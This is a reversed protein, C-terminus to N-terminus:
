GPRCSGGTTDVCVLDVHRGTVPVSTLTRGWRRTTGGCGVNLRFPQDPTTRYLKKRFPTTGDLPAARTAFWADADQTDVWVGTVEAGSTCRVTGSLVAPRLMVGLWVGVVAVVLVAAVTAARRAVGHPSRATM